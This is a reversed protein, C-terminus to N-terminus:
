GIWYVGVDGVKQGSPTPCKAAFGPVDDINPCNAASGCFPSMGPWSRARAGVVLMGVGMVSSSRSGYSITRRAQKHSLAQGIRGCQAFPRSGRVAQFGLWGQTRGAM